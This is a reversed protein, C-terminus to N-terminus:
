RLSREPQSRPSGQRPTARARREQLRFHAVSVVRPSGERCVDGLVVCSGSQMQARREAPKVLISGRKREEACERIYFTCCGHTVSCAAPNRFSMAFIWSCGYLSPSRKSEHLDAGGVVFGVYMQRTAGYIVCEYWM